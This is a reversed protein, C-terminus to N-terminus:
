FTEAKGHFYQDWHKRKAQQVKNFETGFQIINVLLTGLLIENPNTIQFKQNNQYKTSKSQYHVQVTAVSAIYEIRSRLKNQDHNIRM